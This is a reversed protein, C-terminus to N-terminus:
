APSVHTRLLERGGGPLSRYLRVTVQASNGQLHLQAANSTTSSPIARQVGQGAAISLTRTYFMSAFGAIPPPSNKNLDELSSWTYVRGPLWSQQDDRGATQWPLSICLPGGYLSDLDITAVTTGLTDNIVQVSPLGAVELQLTEPVLASTYPNWWTTMWRARAELPRVPGSVSQDTRVSFTLLFYSLVPAVGFTVGSATVPPTLRYRRRLSERPSAGPYSPSISPTAPAAPDEMYNAYNAWAAFAPGRLDPRLSLDQRLGGPDTMALVACNEVSWDHFHQRVSEVGVTTLRDARRLLALQGRDFLRASFPANTADRADFVTSGAEDAAGAGLALQQPLRRRLEESDFPAYSIGATDDSLGVSAKVGEDGVWWAYNGVRSPGAQGPVGRVMISKLPAMVDGAHGSTNRGVLEVASGASTPTVALPNEGENGSVLWTLPKAERTAADWVGTYHVTSVPGGLSAATATSRTDPGAFTQIRGLAITLAMLANHRAQAQRAHQDSVRTEIKLAVGSAVLLLTLFALLGLTLLLAFGREQM